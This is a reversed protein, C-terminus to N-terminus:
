VKSAEDFLSEVLKTYQPAWDRIITLTHVAERDERILRLLEARGKQALERGIRSGFWRGGFTCVILIVSILGVVFWLDNTPDTLFTPKWKLTIAGIFVLAIVMGFLAGKAANQENISISSFLRKLEVSRNQVEQLAAQRMKANADIHVM